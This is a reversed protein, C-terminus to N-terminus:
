SGIWGLPGSQDLDVVIEDVADGFGALLAPEAFDIAEVDAKCGGAVLESL